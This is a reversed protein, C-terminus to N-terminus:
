SALTVLELLRLFNFNQLQLLLIKIPKTIANPKTRRKVTKMTSHNSELLDVNLM